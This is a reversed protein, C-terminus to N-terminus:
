GEMLRALQGADMLPSGSGAPRVDPGASTPTKPEVPEGSPEPMGGGMELLAEELQDHLMRLYPLRTYAEEKPFDIRDMLKSQYDRDIPRSQDFSAMYEDGGIGEPLGLLGILAQGLAQQDTYGHRGPWYSKFAVATQGEFESSGSGKSVGDRVAAEPVAPVDDANNFALAKQNKNPRAGLLIKGGLNGKLEQPMGTKASAYQTAVILHIGYARGIQSLKILNSLIYARTQGELAKEVQPASAKKSLSGADKAGVTLQSLEDVVLLRYKVKPRMDEPVANM